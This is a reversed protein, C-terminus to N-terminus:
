MVSTYKSGSFAKYMIHKYLVLTIIELMVRYTIYDPLIGFYKQRKPMYHLRLSGVKRLMAENFDKGDDGKRLTSVIKVVHKSSVRKGCM